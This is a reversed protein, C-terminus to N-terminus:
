TILYTFHVVLLQSTTTIDPYFQKLVALVAEKSQFGSKLLTEHTMIELTANSDFTDVRLYAFPARPTLEGSSAATTAVVTSHPFITALDSNKDNEVDSPLRMTVSKAGSVIDATLSANFDLRPLSLARLSERTCASPDFLIRDFLQLDQTFRDNIAIWPRIMSVHELARDLRYMHKTMLWAVVLAASRSRGALCHVLVNSAEEKQVNELTNLLAPLRELLPEDLSDDMEVVVRKITQTTNDSADLLERDRSSLLGLSVGISKTRLAEMNLAAEMPGIYVGELIRMPEDDALEEVEYEEEEDYEYEDMGEM